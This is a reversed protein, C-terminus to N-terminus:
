PTSGFVSLWLWRTVMLQAAFPGIVSRTRM